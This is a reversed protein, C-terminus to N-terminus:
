YMGDLDGLLAISVEKRREDIRVDAPWWASVWREGNEFLAVQVLRAEYENEVMFVACRKGALDQESTFLAVGGLVSGEGVSVSGTWDGVAATRDSEYVDSWTPLDDDLPWDDDGEEDFLDSPLYKVLDAPGLGEQRLTAEDFLFAPAFIMGRDAYGHSAWMAAGTPTDTDEPDILPQDGAELAGDQLAGLLGLRVHADRLTALLDDLTEGSLVEEARLRRVAETLTPIARRTLLSATLHQHLHLADAHTATSVDFSPMSDPSPSAENTGAELQGTPRFEAEVAANWTPHGISHAVVNFLRARGVALIADDDADQMGLGTRVKAVAAPDHTKLKRELYDVDAELGARIAEPDHKPM